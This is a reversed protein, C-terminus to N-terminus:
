PRIHRMLVDFVATIDLKSTDILVADPAPRLPALTRESDTRDRERMDAALAAPDHKEGRAELERSRRAARVEPAADLFFKHRAQPFIVTGTDRGEAVLSLRAGLAQQSKKLFARVPANGAIRSAWTGAKETRIEDGVPRGNCFLRSADGFGRLDFHTDEFIRRLNREEPDASGQLILALSRFMAGTDLYAIGLAAAIKRALTSKGVGAPGDLTIILPHPSM